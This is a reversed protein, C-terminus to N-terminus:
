AMVCEEFSDNIDWKPEFDVVTNIQICDLKRSVDDTEKLLKKMLGRVSNRDFDITNVEKVSYRYSVQEGDSNLKYSISEKQKEGSKIKSLSDLIKAFGQKKKNLSIACDIDIETGMKTDSIALALKEKEDLVKVVFNIVDNPTFEVDYPKPTKITEDEANPDAKKRLHTEVNTTVFGKNNLYCYAIGLLEELFNQYRFSEKLNMAM